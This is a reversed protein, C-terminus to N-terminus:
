YLDFSVQGFLQSIKNGTSSPYLTLRNTAANYYGRMAKGESDGYNWANVPFRYLRSTGGLQVPFENSLNWYVSNPLDTVTSPTDIFFDVTVHKGSMRYSVNLPITLLSTHSAPTNYVYDRYMFEDHHEGLIVEIMNKAIINHGTQVPHLNDDKWINSTAGPGYKGLWLAVDDVYANRFSVNNRMNNKLNSLWYPYEAYSTAKNPDDTDLTDMTDWKGTNGCVVFPRANPFTNRINTITNQIGTSVDSYTMGHRYDNVGGFAIVLSVDEATYGGVIVKDLAGSVQNEIKNTTGYAFGNGAKANTFWAVMRLNNAVTEMWPHSPDNSNDSWSDGLVVMVGRNVNRVKTDIYKKVTNQATFASSPLITPLNGIAESFDDVTEDKWDDLESETDTKWNNWLTLVGSATVEDIIEQVYMNLNNEIWEQAFEDFSDLYGGNTFDIVIQNITAIAVDQANIDEVLENCKDQIKALLEYYSLSDDYVAPLVKQIYMDRLPQIPNSLSM